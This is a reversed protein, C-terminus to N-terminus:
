ATAGMHEEIPVDGRLTVLQRVKSLEGSEDFSKLLGVQKETINATAAASKASETAFKLFNDLTRMTKLVNAAAIPGVGRCGKIGDVKDGVMTQYDVWQIPNVKYFERCDEATMWQPLLKDGSRNLKTCQTVLGGCLLQRLDKDSSVMVVRRGISLAVNVVTAIVDDAEFSPVTVSDVCEDRCADKARELAEDFGEPKPGRNSKYTPVIDRRFSSGDVPDWAVIIREPHYTRSMCRLRAVFRSATSDGCSFDKFVMNNGDIAFWTPVHEAAKIPSTM